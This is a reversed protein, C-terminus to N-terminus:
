LQLGPESRLFENWLARHPRPFPLELIALERIRDLRFHRFAARMECWAVLTEVKDFWGIAVPWVRRKTDRGNGDRYSFVVVREAAIAERIAPLVDPRAGPEPPAVLLPVTSAGPLGFLEPLSAAMKARAAQAAQVLGPDGRRLVFRLGLHIAAAEEATFSLPPLFFGDRLLYGIGASGEIRAGQHNLAAIDRYVSRESIRFHEALQAATVPQSRGRMFELIALLRQSRIM